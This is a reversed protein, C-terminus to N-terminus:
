NLAEWLGTSLNWQLYEGNVDKAVIKGGGLKTELVQSPIEKLGTIKECGMNKQATVDIEVWSGNLDFYVRDAINLESVKLVVMNPTGTISNSNESNGETVNLIGLTVGKANNLGTITANKLNVEKANSLVSVYDINKDTTTSTTETILMDMNLTTGSITVTWTADSAKIKYWDNQTLNYLNGDSLTLDMHKVTSVTPAPATNPACLVEADKNVEINHKVGNLTFDGAVYEEGSKYWTTVGVANRDHKETFILTGVVSVLGADLKGAPDVKTTINALSIELVADAPIGFVSETNVTVSSIAKESKDNNYAKYEGDIEVEGNVVLEGIKAAYKYPSTATGAGSIAALTVIGDTVELTPLACVTTQASAGTGTTYTFTESIEVDCNAILYNVPSEKLSLAAAPKETLTYKVTGRVANTYQENKRAKYITLGKAPKLEALIIVAGTNDDIYTEAGAKIDLTGKYEHAQNEATANAFSANSIFNSTLVNHNVFLGYNTTAKKANFTGHNNITPVGNWEKKEEDFEYGAFEVEGVKVSTMPQYNYFAATVNIIGNNNIIGYNAGALNAVAVEASRSEAGVNVVADKANKLNFQAIVGAPVTVTGHNYVNDIGEYAALKDEEDYVATFVLNAGAMVDVTPADLTADATLTAGKKVILKGGDVKINKLTVDGAVAVDNKIVFEAVEPMKLDSTLVFDGIIRVALEAADCTAATATSWEQEKKYEASYKKLDGYKEVLNNWDAATSVVNETMLIDIDAENAVPETNLTNSMNRAFATKKKAVLTTSSFKYSYQNTFDMEYAGKDTFIYMMIEEAEDVETFDEISPLMFRVEISNSVVKENMEYIFYPTTKIDAYYGYTSIEDGDVIFETTQWQAWFDAETLKKDAKQAAELTKPNFLEVIRGHNLAGKYIFENKVGNIEAYKKMLVIKTVKTVDLEKNFNIRVKPYTFMNKLAISAEKDGERLVTAAVAKNYAEIHANPNKSDYQVIIPLEYKAASRNKDEPNYPNTFLYNGVGLEGASKWQDGGVNEFPLAPAVTKVIEWTAPDEKDWNALTYGQGPAFADILNAGILDGEEFTFDLSTSGEVAYRSEVGSNTNLVFDKSLKAREAQQLANNESVIDDATCAAFMTPLALATLIHKTKM